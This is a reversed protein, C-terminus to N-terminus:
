SFLSVGGPGVLLGVIILVVGWLIQRRFLALVGAVVLVVALIWLILDM